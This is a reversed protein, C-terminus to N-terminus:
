STASRERQNRDPDDRWVLYSYAMTVLIIVVAGAGMLIPAAMPAAFAVLITLGGLAAFLRGGLRHTRDWSRESSLTWPTRIGFFWNSRVKGLYNGIVLFLLGVLGAVLAGVPVDRGLGALLAMAHVGLLVVLVGIWAANYAKASQELNRRRPDVHPLLYLLAGLGAAVLPLLVLGQFRSGYGDVEGRINWHTPVRDPLEPAAWWSLGAMLGVVVLTAWTGPKRNM